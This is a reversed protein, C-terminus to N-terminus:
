LPGLEKCSVKVEEPHFTDGHGREGKVTGCM